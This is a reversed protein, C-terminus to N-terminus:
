NSENNNLIFGYNLLFRSNCKRGYSDFVEEGVGVGEMAEILFGERVDCYSWATQRPVRHNLMDALPM